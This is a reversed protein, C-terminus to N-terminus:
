MSRRGNPIGGTGLRTSTTLAPSSPSRTVRRAVAAITRLSRLRRVRQRPWQSLLLRLVMLPITRASTSWSNDRDARAELRSVDPIKAMTAMTKKRNKLSFSLARPSTFWSNLNSRQAAALQSPRRPRVEPLQHTRPQLVRLDTAPNSSKRRRRPLKRLRPPRLRRERPSMSLLMWELPRPRSLPKV